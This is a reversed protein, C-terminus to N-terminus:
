SLSKSDNVDLKASCLLSPSLGKTESTSAFGCRGKGGVVRWCWWRVGGGGGGRVSASSSICAVSVWGCPRRATGSEVEREGEVHFGEEGRLGELLGGREVEEDVALWGCGGATGVGCVGLRGPSNMGTARPTGTADVCRRVRVHGCVDVLGKGLSGGVHPVLIWSM